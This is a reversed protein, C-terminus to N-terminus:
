CDYCRFDITKFLVISIHDDFLSDIITEYNLIKDISLLTM